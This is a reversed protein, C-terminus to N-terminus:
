AARGQGKRYEIIAAVTDLWVCGTAHCRRAMEQWAAAFNKCHWRIPTTLAPLDTLSIDYMGWMLLVADIPFNRDFYSSNRDRPPIIGVRLEWPSRWSTGGAPKVVASVLRGTKVFPDGYANSAVVTAPTRSEAKSLQARQEHEVTEVHRDKVWKLITVPTDVLTIDGLGTITKDIPKMNMITVEKM